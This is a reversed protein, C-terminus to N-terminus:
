GHDAGKAATRVSIPPHTHGLAVIEVVGGEILQRLEDPTPCWYSAVVPMCGDESENGRRIHLDPIHPAGGRLVANCAPHRIPAM